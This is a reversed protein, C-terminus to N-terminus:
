KPGHRNYGRDDMEAVASSKNVLLIMEEFDGVEAPPELYGRLLM